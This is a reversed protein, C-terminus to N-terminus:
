RDEEIIAMVAHEDDSETHQPSTPTRLGQANIIKVAVASGSSATYSQKPATPLTSTMSDVSTVGAPMELEAASPLKPLRRTSLAIIPTAVIDITKQRLVSTIKDARQRAKLHFSLVIQAIVAMLCSIVWSIFWFPHITAYDRARLAKCDANSLASLANNLECDVYFALGERMADHKAFFTFGTAVLISLTLLVCFAYVLVRQFLDEMNKTAEKNVRLKNQEVTRKVAVSSAILFVGSFVFSVSLPLVVFGLFQNKDAVGPVCVGMPEIADITSTALSVSVMILVVLVIPCHWWKQAVDFLPSMPNKFQRWVVFSLLLVYFSYFMMAFYFVVGFVTCPASQGDMPNWVSYEGDFCIVGEKGLFLSGAMMATLTFTSLTIIYPIHFLLPKACFSEKSHKSPRPPWSSSTSPPSAM